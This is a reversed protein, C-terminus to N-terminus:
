TETLCMHTSIAFLPSIMTGLVYHRYRTSIKRRLSIVWKYEDYQESTLPKYYHEYENGARSELLTSNSDEVFLSARLNNQCTLM